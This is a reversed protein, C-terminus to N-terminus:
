FLITLRCGDDDREISVNSSASKALRLMKENSPLIEAIFGRLGKAIAYEKLRKQLGSGLGVGQWSPDIIFATEAMNTAANVFYCGSGVITEDERPGTVAVFAVDSVHDVNCLKQAEEFSLSRLRSFFRTYIDEPPLRHFLNQLARADSARTPRILVAQGGKLTLSREEDIQYYGEHVLRQKATVYGLRKAEDILWGRFKPHAIEALALAREQISKGFLYAIGYETIVYHVDARAIGVGDGTPLLPRIRSTKGDDTTSAMCIIPKGDAARSTGRIFDLQTSVGGYFEGDFQDISTQGTLDVAFAQTMSVMKHNAAIVTPNCVEEISLFNFLPNDDIFRYLKETGVCYSTIIKKPYITKAAGTIVGNQVLDIVGDTIVDSHVGLGRRDRLYKLVENPIRGLGIQLTSGDEIVGAVYKAIRSALEDPVSHTYTQLPEDVPVIHAVDSLHVFTDGHTRPMHPNVEAVVRKAHRIMAMTIDVSVGLSMYGNIDPTSTQVFAIDIRLRRNKLLRPVENLRIPIYDAAGSKIFPKMDTGVFFARHYYQTKVNERGEYAGTTLFHYICVDPPPKPLSELAAVITRPTACATGVFVNHGPKVLRAAQEATIVKESYSQM